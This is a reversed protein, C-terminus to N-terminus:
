AICRPTARDTSRAAARCRALAALLARPNVPKELYDAAGLARALSEERLVSCVLVPIRAAAAEGKLHQLLEWGDLAPMVVDLVVVDPPARRIRELADEAKRSNVVTYPTGALCRRFLRVFDPDDDVLLVTLRATPLTIEVDDGDPAGRLVVDARPYGRPTGADILDRAVPPSSRLHEAPSGRVQVSLRVCGDADAAAVSVHPRGLDIAEVLIALLAQRLAVREIVVRPLGTPLTIALTAGREALLPQVTQAVGRVAADVDTAEPEEIADEPDGGRSAVSPGPAVRREWLIATIAELADHHERRAHRESVALSDAAHRASEHSVYRLQLLRYHRWGPVDPAASAPPRVQEIAELLVQRLAAGRTSAPADPVLAALPHRALFPLDHLHALAERAHLAFTARDTALPAAHGVHRQHM